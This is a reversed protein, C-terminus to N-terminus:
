WFYFVGIMLSIFFFFCKRSIRFLYFYRGIKSLWTLLGNQRYFLRGGNWSRYTPATPVLAKVQNYKKRHVIKSWIINLDSLSFRGRAASEAYRPTALVQWRPLSETWDFSSSFFWVLISLLTVFISRKTFSLQRATTRTWTEAEATDSDGSM